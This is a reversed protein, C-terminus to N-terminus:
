LANRYEAESIIGKDRCQTLFVYLPDGVVNSFPGVTFDLLLGANRGGLRTVDSRFEAAARNARRLEMAAEARRRVIARWDEGREAMVAAVNAARERCERDGLVALAHRIAGREVILAHLRQGDTVQPLTLAFGNLM